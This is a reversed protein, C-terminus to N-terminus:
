KKIIMAGYPYATKPLLSDYDRIGFLGFLPAALWEERNVLVPTGDVNDYKADVQKEYLDKFVDYTKVCEHIIRQEEELSLSGCPKTGFYIVHPLTEKVHSVELVYAYESQAADEPNCHIWEDPCILTGNKMTIGNTEDDIKADKVGAFIQYLEQCEQMMASDKAKGFEPKNCFDSNLERYKNAICSKLYERMENSCCAISAIVKVLGPGNKIEMNKFYNTMSIQLDESIDFTMKNKKIQKM